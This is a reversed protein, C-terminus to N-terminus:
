MCIYALKTSIEFNDSGSSFVLVNDIVCVGLCDELIYNTKHKDIQDVSTASIVAIDSGCTICLKDNYLCMGKAVGTNELKSKWKTRKKKFSFMKLSNDCTNLIYLCDKEFNYITVLENKSQGNAANYTKAKVIKGSKDLIIVKEPTSVAFNSSCVDFDFGTINCFQEDAIISGALTLKNTCVKFKDIQLSTDKVTAIGGIGLGCMSIRGGKLIAKDFYHGDLGVVLVSNHIDSMLGICGEGLYVLKSFKLASSFNEKKLESVKVTKNIFQKQDIGEPWAVTKYANLGSKDASTEYLKHENQPEDERKANKWKVDKEFATSKAKKTGSSFFNSIGFLGKSSQEKQDSTTSKRSETQAPMDQRSDDSIQAVKANHDDLVEDSYIPEKQPTDPIIDYHEQDILSVYSLFNDSQM